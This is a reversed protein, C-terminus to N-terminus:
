RSEDTVQETNSVRENTENSAQHSNLIIIIKKNLHYLIVIIGDDKLKIYELLYYCM